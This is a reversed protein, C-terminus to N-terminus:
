GGEGAPSGLLVTFWVWKGGPVCTYGIADATERLLWLGRGREADWDPVQVAPARRSRDYLRVLATGRGQRVELRCRRDAVHRCVNSLLESIGLRATEVAARDGGMARVAAAVERRWVEIERAEVTIEWAFSHREEAVRAPIAM